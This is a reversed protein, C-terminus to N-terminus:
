VEVETYKIDDDLFTENCELCELKGEVLGSGGCEECIIYCNNVDLEGLGDCDYCELDCLESKPNQCFPCLKRKM